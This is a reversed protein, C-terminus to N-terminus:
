PQLRIAERIAAMCVGRSHAATREDYASGDLLYTCSFMRGTADPHDVPALVVWDLGIPVGANANLVMAGESPGVFENTEPVEVKTWTVTLGASNSQATYEKMWEDLGLEAFLVTDNLILEGCEHRMRIAAGRDVIDYVCESLDFSLRELEASQEPPAGVVPWSAPASPKPGAGDLLAGTRPDIAVSRSAECEHVGFGVFFGQADHELSVGPDCSPADPTAQVEGLLELGSSGVRAYAWGTGRSFGILPPGERPVLLAALAEGQLGASLDIHRDEDFWVLAPTSDSRELMAVAERQGDCDTDILEYAIPFGLQADLAAAVVRPPAVAEAMTPLIMISSPPVLKPCAVFPLNTGSAEPQAEVPSTPAPSKTGTPTTTPSCALTLALVPLLRLQM